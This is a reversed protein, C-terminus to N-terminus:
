SNFVLDQTNGTQEWETADDLRHVDLHTVRLEAFGEDDLHVLLVPHTVQEGIGLTRIRASWASWWMDMMFVFTLTM